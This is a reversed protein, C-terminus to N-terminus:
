GGARAAYLEGHAGLIGLYGRQGFSMDDYFSTLYSPRVALVVVGDFSGDAADLRRTFRIVLQGSARGMTQAGIRLGRTPDARHSRFYEEGALNPLRAAGHNSRAVNGDRDLIGVFVVWDRLLVSNQAVQGLDGITEGHERRFQLSQSVEDVHSISLSLGKGVARSLAAAQSLANREVFDKDTNLKSVVVTWLLLAVGLCILPWALIPLLHARLFRLKSPLNFRFRDLARSLRQSIRSSAM